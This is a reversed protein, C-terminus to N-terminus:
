YGLYNKQYQEYTEGFIVEQFFAESAVKDGLDDVSGGDKLFKMVEYTTKLAARFPPQGELAFRCNNDALFKPDRLEPTTRGVILPLNTAACAAQIDEAGRPHGALFIADVGCETYAKIRKVAAEPGEQAFSITRAIICFSPDIRSNLASGLKGIM